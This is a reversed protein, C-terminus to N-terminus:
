SAECDNDCTASDKPHLSSKGAGYHKMKVLIFTSCCFFIRTNFIFFTCQNRVSRMRFHKQTGWDRCFLTESGQSPTWSMKIIQGTVEEKGEGEQEGGDGRTGQPSVQEWAGQAIEHVTKAPVGEPNQGVLSELSLMLMM